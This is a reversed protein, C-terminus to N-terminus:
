LEEDIVEKWRNGHVLKNITKNYTKSEQLKSSTKTVLKAFEFYMLRVLRDSPNDGITKDLDTRPRQIVLRDQPSENRMLSKNLAKVKM